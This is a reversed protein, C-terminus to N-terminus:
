RSSDTLSTAGRTARMTPEGSVAQRFLQNIFDQRLEAEKDNSGEFHARQQSFREVLQLIKRPITMATPDFAKEPPERNIGCGSHRVKPHNGAIPRCATAILTALQRFDIPQTVSEPDPAHHNSGLFRSLRSQPVAARFTKISPEDEAPRRSILGRGLAPRRSWPDACHPRALERRCRSISAYSVGSVSHPIRRSRWSISYPFGVERRDEM